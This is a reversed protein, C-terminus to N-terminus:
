DAWLERKKIETKEAAKFFPKDLSIVASDNFLVRLSMQKLILFGFGFM